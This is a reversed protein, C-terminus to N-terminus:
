PKQNFFPYVHSLEKRSPAPLTQRARNSNTHIRRFAAQAPNRFLTDFRSNHILNKVTVPRRCSEPSLLAEKASSQNNEFRTSRVRNWGCRKFCQHAKAKGASPRFNLGGAIRTTTSETEAQAAFVGCLNELMLKRTVAM